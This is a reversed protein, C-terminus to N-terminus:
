AIRGILETPYFTLTKLDNLPHWELEYSDEPNNIIAEEGGLALDGTFSTVHYYRHPNGDRPDTYDLFSDSLVVNLCTEEKAERIAADAVSEGVEVGGGPLVFYEKGRNFRHILLIKKDQVIIVGARM